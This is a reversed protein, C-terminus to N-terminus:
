GRAHPFKQGEALRCEMGGPDDGRTPSSCCGPAVHACQVLIMGKRPPVAKNPCIFPVSLSCGRAHPFQRSVADASVRGM